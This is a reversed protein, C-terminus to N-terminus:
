RIRKRIPPSIRRGTDGDEVRALFRHRRCRFPARASQRRAAAQRRMRWCIPMDVVASLGPEDRTEIDHEHRHESEEEPLPGPFTQAATTSAALMKRSDTVSANVTEPPSRSTMTLATKAQWIRCRGGYRAHRGAAATTSGSTVPVNLRSM